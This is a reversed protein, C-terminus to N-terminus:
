TPRDQQRDGSLTAAFTKSVTKGMQVRQKESLKISVQDRPGSVPPEQRRQRHNKSHRREM